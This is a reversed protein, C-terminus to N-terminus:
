KLLKNSSMLRSVIRLTPLVTKTPYKYFNLIKKKKKKLKQKNKKEQYLKNETNHNKM